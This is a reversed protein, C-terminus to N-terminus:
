NSRSIFDNVNFSSDAPHSPTTHQKTHDRTIHHPTHHPPASTLAPGPWLSLPRLNAFKQLSVFCRLLVRFFKDLPLSFSCVTLLLVCTVSTLRATWSPGSRRSPSATTLLSMNALTTGSTMLACRVCPLSFFSAAAAAAVSDRYIM